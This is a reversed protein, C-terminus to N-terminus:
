QLGTKIVTPTPRQSGSASVNQSVRTTANNDLCQTSVV